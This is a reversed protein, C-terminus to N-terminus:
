NWKFIKVSQIMESQSSQKQSTLEEGGRNKSLLHSHIPKQIKLLFSIKEKLIKLGEENAHIELEKTKNDLEFTLVHEREKQKNHNETIEFTIKKAIIEICDDYFFFVYHKYDNIHLDKDPFLEKIWPSDSIEFFAGDKPFESLYGITSFDEGLVKYAPIVECKVMWYSNDSDKHYVITLGKENSLSILECDRRDEGSSPLEIKVIQM